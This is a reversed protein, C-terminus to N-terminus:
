SLLHQQEESGVSGGLAVLSRKTQFLKHEVCKKFIHLSKNLLNWSLYSLFLISPLSILVVLSVAYLANDFPTSILLCLLAMHALLLTDLINMYSKKYPQVYGIFLSVCTILIIGFFWVNHALFVERIWYVVIIAYRLYFYLASFRRRDRVGTFNDDYCGYFKEVFTQLAARFKGNLRCIILCRSFLRTPYLLLVLPSPIVVLVLLVLSVVVFPVHESSMFSISPDYLNVKVYPAGNKLIYQTSLIQISQYTLKSYSLLLFTASVGITDNSIDWRKRLRVFCRHFPRWLLVLPRCNRGHLEVCAWTLVILSLSYLASLCGFFEVHIIALKSSICIPSVIYHLFDLNWIGYLSAVAM